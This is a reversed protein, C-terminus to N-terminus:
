KTNIPMIHWGLYKQTKALTGGGGTGGEIEGNEKQM